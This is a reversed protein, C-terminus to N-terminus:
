AGYLVEGPKMIEIYTGAEGAGLKRAIEIGQEVTINEHREILEVDLAECGAIIILEKHVESMSQNRPLSGM